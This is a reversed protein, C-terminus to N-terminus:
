LEEQLSVPVYFCAKSKSDQVNVVGNGLTQEPHDLWRKCNECKDNYVVPKCRTYEM